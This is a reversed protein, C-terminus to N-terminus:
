PCVPAEHDHDGGSAAVGVIVGVAVAAAAIGVWTWTSLGLWGEEEVPGETWKPEANAIMVPSKSSAVVSPLAISEGTSLSAVLAGEENTVFLLGQISKVTVSGKSHVLISGAFEKEKTLAASTGKASQLSYSKTIWLNGVKFRLQVDPQISFNIKGQHLHFEDRQGFHFLSESGIEIRTKEALALVAEGKETRIRMGEFVPFPTEVRLWSNEKVEFKVGGSSVMQAVPINQNAQAIIRPFENVLLLFSVSLFYIFVKFIIGKKM